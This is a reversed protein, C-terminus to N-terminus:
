SLGSLAASMAQWGEVPAWGLYTKIPQMRPSPQEPELISLGPTQDAIACVPLASIPVWPVACWVGLAPHGVCRAARLSPECRM